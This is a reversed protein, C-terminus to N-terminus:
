NDAPATASSPALRDMHTDIELASCMDFYIDKTDGDEFIVEITVLYLCGWGRYSVAFGNSAETSSKTRPTFTPHNFKYTVRRIQERREPSIDLWLVFNYLQRGASDRMAPTASARPRMLDSISAKGQRNLKEIAMNVAIEADRKQRELQVIEDKLRHRTELLSGLQYTAAITTVVAIIAVVVQIRVLAHFTRRDTVM